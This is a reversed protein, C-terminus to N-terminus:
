QNRMKEGGGPWVAGRESLRMAHVSVRGARAAASREGGVRDVPEAGATEGGEVEVREEGWGGRWGMLLREGGDVGDLREEWLEFDEFAEAAAAHADDEFGSLTGEVPEDGEFEEGRFAGGVWGEGGAEGGFGFGEGGETVRVDNGDM